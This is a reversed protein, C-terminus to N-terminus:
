AQGKVIAYNQTVPYITAAGLTGGPTIAAGYPTASIQFETTTLGTAIVYYYTNISVGTMSGINNFIVVNGAQLGHPPTTTFTASALSAIAPGTGVAATKIYPRVYNVPAQNLLGVQSYSNGANVTLSAGSDAWWIGDM